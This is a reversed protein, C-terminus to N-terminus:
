PIQKNEKESILDEVPVELYNAIKLLKDAKPKSRGSKWDSFTSQPMELDKAIKYPTIGRRDILQRFKDYM